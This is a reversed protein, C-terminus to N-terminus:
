CNEKRVPDIKKQRASLWAWLPIAAGVIGVSIFQSTSLPLGLTTTGRIKDGRLFEVLFRVVAYYTVFLLMVQGKFRRYPYVLMLLVFCTFGKLSLLLQTPVVGPSLLDASQEVRGHFHQSFAPAGAPIWEVIAPNSWRPFRVAWLAESERGFDCGYLYCGFRTIGTGLALGPAVCDGRGWWDAQLWLAGIATVLFAGLFGGYAVLGGEQFRFFNALSFEQPASALFYLLRAGVITAFPVSLLLINTKRRNYGFREIFYLALLWGLLFAVGLMVGYAFIPRGGVQSGGM